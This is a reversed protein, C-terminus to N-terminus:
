SSGSLDPQQPKRVGLDDEDGHIIVAVERSPPVNKEARITRVAKVVEMLLDMDDEAKADRWAKPPGPWPAIMVSGETGPLHHWLEETLFPMYPHLLELTGKLVTWLTQKARTRSEEGERGYLRPKALEIYW